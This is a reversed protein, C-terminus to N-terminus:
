PTSAEGGVVDVLWRQFRAAYGDEARAQARALEKPGYFWRPSRSEGEPLHRRCLGRQQRGGPGSASTGPARGPSRFPRLARLRRAVARLGHCRPRDVSDRGESSWYVDRLYFVLAFEDLIFAAGVGFLIACLNRIAVDTGARTFVILGAVLVFVIGV